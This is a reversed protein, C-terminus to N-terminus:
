KGTKATIERIITERLSNDFAERFDYVDRFDDLSDEDTKSLIKKEILNFVINGFDSTENIGWHNLVRKALAGYQEIAFKRLGDSLERGTVHRQKKLNRQTFHLAQMLFWYSEPKYRKDRACIEEVIAYFNMEGDMRVKLIVADNYAGKISNELL